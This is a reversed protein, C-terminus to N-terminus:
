LNWATALRSLVLTMVAANASMGAATDEEYYSM